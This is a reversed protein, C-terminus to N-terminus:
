DSARTGVQQSAATLFAIEAERLRRRGAEVTRVVEGWGEPDDSSPGGQAVSDLAETLRALHECATTYSATVDADPGLRVAIRLRLERLEDVANDLTQLTQRTREDDVSSANDGQSDAIHREANRLTTMSTGLALAATDLVSRLEDLRAVGAQLRLKGRELRSAILPVIIAVSASAGISALAVADAM